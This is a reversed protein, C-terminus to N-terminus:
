TDWSATWTSSDPLVPNPKDNWIILNITQMGKLKVKVSVLKLLFDYSKASLLESKTRLSASQFL